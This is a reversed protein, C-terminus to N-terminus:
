RDVRSKEVKNKVCTDDWVRPGFTADYWNVLLFSLM